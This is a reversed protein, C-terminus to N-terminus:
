VPFLSFDAQLSLFSIQYPNGQRLDAYLVLFAQSPLRCQELLMSGVPMSYVKPPMRPVAEGGARGMLIVSPLAYEKTVFM